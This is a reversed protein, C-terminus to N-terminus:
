DPPSAIRGLVQAAQSGHLLRHDYTAGLFCPVFDPEMSRIPLPAAHSVIMATGPPLIPVHRSVGRKALSTLAITGGVTEEPRLTGKFAKMQLSNLARVFELPDLADADRVVVLYLLNEHEVTFGLNVTEYTVLDDGDITANVLPMEVAARVLAHSMLALMPDMMLRHQRAFSDAYKRWELHNYVREVYTACAERYQWSVNRVMTKQFPTLSSRRARVGSPAILSATAAPRSTTPPSPRSELYKQVDAVGIRDGTFPIADMDVDHERILAMAKLTAQRMDAKPAAAPAEPAVPVREDMSDGIWLIVSGVGVTAGLGAELALVYGERDAEVTVLSKTTEVECLLDGLAVKQGISVNIRRLTLADENANLRPTFVGSVM